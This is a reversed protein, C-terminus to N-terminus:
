YIFSYVTFGFLSRSLYIVKYVEGFLGGGLKNEDSFNDTAEKLDNYSYTSPGQLFDTSGTSMDLLKFGFIYIYFCMLITFFSASVFTWIYTILLNFRTKVENAEIKRKPNAVGYSFQLYSCCFVYM